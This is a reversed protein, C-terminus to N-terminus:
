PQLEIGIRSLTKRYSSLVEERDEDLRPPSVQAIGTGSRLINLTIKPNCDFGISFKGESVIRYGEKKLIFALKAVDVSLMKPPNVVYTGRGDRGCSEEVVIGKPVNEVNRKGEGCSPCTNERKVEISEFSLSALDAFFLRGALTPQKGTIVRTAEFVEIGSVIGLISQHVGVVACRDLLSEELGPYFCEVCATRGPLITSASGQLEIAAGFVYPVEEDICARNLTYRHGISDLGDIVVDMGRVLERSNSPSLAVPRADVEVDPNLQHIRREAAEVKSVGIDSSTYLYQRHLDSRSVVDRDVIRLLGVGMGALKLATPCGLGGMGVLLVRAGKIKGQGTFGIEELVIQRSYRELDDPKLQTM